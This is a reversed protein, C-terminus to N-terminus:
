GRGQESEKLLLHRSSAFGLREYVPLAAHSSHVTVRVTGSRRAHDTAARVLASGIHRGRHEPVVFVSQIDASLRTPAGPRPVRPVFALWVMGIVEADSTRAVFAVHSHEHDTWWTTLDVAFSEVTQESREDPAALSWLLRALHAVDAQDAVRIDM